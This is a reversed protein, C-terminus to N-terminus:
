EGSRQRQDARSDEAVASQDFAAGGDVRRGRVQEGEVPPGGKMRRRTWLSSTVEGVKNQVRGSDEEEAAAAQGGEKAEDFLYMREEARVAQAIRVHHDGSARNAATRHVVDGLDDTIASSPSTPSDDFPSDMVHRLVHAGRM